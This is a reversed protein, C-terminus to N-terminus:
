PGRWRFQQASSAAILRRQQRRRLRHASRGAASAAAGSTGCRRQCLRAGLGTDRDVDTSSSQAASAALLSNIDGRPGEGPPVHLACNM